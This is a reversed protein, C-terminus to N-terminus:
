SVAGLVTDEAACGVRDAGRRTFDVVNNRKRVRLKARRTPVEAIRTTWRKWEVTKAQAPM